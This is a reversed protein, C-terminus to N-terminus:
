EARSGGLAVCDRSALIRLAAGYARRHAPLSARRRALAMAALARICRGVHCLGDGTRVGDLVPIGAVGLRSRTTRRIRYPYSRFLTTYPFLTSIPPRPM